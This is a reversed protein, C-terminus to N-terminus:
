ERHNRALKALQSQTVGREVLDALACCDPHGEKRAFEICFKASAYNGDDLVVHWCCGAAHRAYIRRVIPMMEPVKPRNPDLVRKV